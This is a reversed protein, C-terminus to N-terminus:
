AVVEASSVLTRKIVAYEVGYPVKGSAARGEREINATVAEEQTACEARYCWWDGRRDRYWAEYTVKEGPLLIDDGRNTYDSM